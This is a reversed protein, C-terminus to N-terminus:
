AQISVMQGNKPEAGDLRWMRMPHPRPKRPPREGGEEFDGYGVGNFSYSFPTIKIKNILLILVM